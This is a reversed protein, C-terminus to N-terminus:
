ESSPSGLTTDLTARGGTLAEFAVPLFPGSKGANGFSEVQDSLADLFDTGAPEPTVLVFAARFKREEPPSLARLGHRAVIDEFRVVETFGSVVAREEVVDVSSILEFDNFEVFSEPVEDAPLLGMLYLDLPGYPQGDELESSTDLKLEYLGDDRASCDPPLAGEPQACQWAEGGLRGPVARTFHAPTSTLGLAPDLYNAWYHELEHAWPGLAPTGFDYGSSAAIIGRLRPQDQYAENEVTEDIGTGPIAARHVPFFRGSVPPGGDAEFGIQGSRDLLFFVFDYEDAFQDYFASSASYPIGGGDLALELDGTVEISVINVVNRHVLVEPEEPSCSCGCFVFAFLSWLWKLNRGLGNPQVGM